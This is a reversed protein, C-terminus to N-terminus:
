ITFGQSAPTPDTNGARDVARVEVTHPGPALTKFIKPSRCVTFAGGDIACRFTMTSLADTGSFRVTARAHVSDPVV